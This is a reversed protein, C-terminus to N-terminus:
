VPRLRQVRAWSLGLAAADNQYRAIQQHTLATLSQASARRDDAVATRYWDVTAKVAAAFAWVPQWQLLHFAKDTALNLLTAEHIAKPDSRDEWRGPWHKLVEQVLEAVTRNSPLTPGFNFASALAGSEVASAPALALRATLWLYGSLPELVHQWPRTAMKNRVPVPAGKQLSRICDPVIRDAAWDGGGIVNGARATAVRVSSEPASFFSRRFAGAVLEVCGKSSSYPDFGGMPDEERYSHVWERNEYCKDTTVVVVVCPRRCQRVAELLHVTGMVNTAYTEVPQSYSWRVLPQAALHLVVEPKVDEIAAQLAALDRVDGEIHRLRGALGLQEFMSPTTPPPLSYGTVEAGLQLLWESLWSGKFGTHGTVLVRRGRFYDEFVGTMELDEM